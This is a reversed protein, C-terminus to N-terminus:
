TSDNEDDDNHLSSLASMAPAWRRRESSWVNRYNFRLVKFTYVHHHIRESHRYTVTNYRIPIPMADISM